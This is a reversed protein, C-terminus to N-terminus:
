GTSLFRHGQADAVLCTLQGTAFAGTDVNIRNPRVEPAEAPTHGHIVIKGFDAKSDLFENRIWLLDQPRQREM